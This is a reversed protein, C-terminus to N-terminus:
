FKTLIKKNFIVNQEKDNSNSNTLNIIYNEAKINKDKDYKILSKSKMKNNNGQYEEKQRQTYSLIIKNNTINDRSTNLIKNNKAIELVSKKPEDLDKRNKRIKSM